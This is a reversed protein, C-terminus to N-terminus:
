SYHRNLRHISTYISSISVVKGQSSYTVLAVRTYNYSVNFDSLLKKVFKTESIFNEKGVSSSSDILFVMDVRKAKRKIDDIATKFNRNIDGMNSKYVANEFNDGSIPKLFKGGFHNSVTYSIDGGVDPNADLRSILDPIFIEAGIIVVSYCSIILFFKMKRCIECFAFIVSCM